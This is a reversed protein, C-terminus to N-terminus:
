LHTFHPLRVFQLQYVILVFTAQNTTPVIQEVLHLFVDVANSGHLQRWVVLHTMM